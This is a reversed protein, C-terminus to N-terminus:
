IRSLQDLVIQWSDDAAEKNFTKLNTDNFFAHGCNQYIKYEFNVGAEEMLKEIEPVDFVLTKDNQGYFAFVPCKIQSVEDLSHTLHGYFPLSLSLRPEKVALSFSYTGGFCFGTVSVKQNSVPLDYLYDFCEKLKQISKDKFEPTQTPAIISFLSQQAAERKEDTFLDEQLQMVDVKSYDLVSLLNPALAIYGQEAFRDAISKINDNLGWIEHVVIIAGKINTTPEVLYCDTALQGVQIMKGQM